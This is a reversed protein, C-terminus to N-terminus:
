KILIKEPRFGRVVIYYGPALTGLDADTVSKLLCVGQLNYVDLRVVRDSNLSGLGTLDANVAVECIATYNGMSAKVTATGPSLAYIEGDSSVAAVAPDSSEWKLVGPQATPPLTHTATLAHMEDTYLEVQDRDLTLGCWVVNSFNKWPERSEYEDRASALAYLTANSYNEKPFDEYSGNVPDESLYVVTNLNNQDGFAMWGMSTLGSPLVVTELDPCRFFAFQGLETVNDSLVVNTLGTEEFARQPFATIQSGYGFTVEKLNHCSKFLEYGLSSVSGPIHISTIGSLGRMGSGGITTLTEPLTISSVRDGSLSYDGIETVTFQTGGKTVTEPIIIDGELDPNGYAGWEGPKTMVTGPTDGEPVTLVVYRIGKYEFEYGEEAFDKMTLLTLGAEAKDNHLGTDSVISDNLYIRCEDGLANQVTYEMGALTYIDSSRYNHADTLVLGEAANLHAHTYLNAADYEPYAAGWNTHWHSEGGEALLYGVEGSAFQAATKTSYNGRQEEADALVYVNKGITGSLSDLGPDFTSFSNEVTGEIVFPTAPHKEGTEDIRYVTGTFACDTLTNPSSSTNSKTVLGAVATSSGNLTVNADSVCGTFTSNVGSAFSCVYSTNSISGSAKCNIFSTNSADQAFLGQKNVLNGSITMDSFTAKWARKVLQENTTLIIHGGTLTGNFLEWGTLRSKFTEFKASTEIDGVFRIKNPTSYDSCNYNVLISMADLEETNTVRYFDDPDLTPMADAAIGYIYSYLVPDNYTWKEPAGGVGTITITHKGAPVKVARKQWEYDYENQPRIPRSEFTQAEEDDIQVSIKGYYKFSLVSVSDKNVKIILSKDVGLREMLINSANDMGSRIVAESTGTEVSVGRETAGLATLTTSPNWTVAYIRTYGKALFEKISGLAEGNVQMSGGVYTVPKSYFGFIETGDTNNNKYIPLAETNMSELEFDRGGDGSFEIVIDTDPYWTVAYIKDFGKNVFERISSFTKGHLQLQGNGDVTAPETYYGLIASGDTNNNKYVPLGDATISELEYNRGGKGSFIPVIPEWRMRRFKVSADLYYVTNFHISFTNKTTLAMGEGSHWRLGSEGLILAGENIRTDAEFKLIGIRDENSTNDVCIEFGSCDKNINGWWGDPLYAWGKGLSNLSITSTHILDPDDFETQCYGLYDVDEYKVIM